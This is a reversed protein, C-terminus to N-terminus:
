YKIEFYGSKLVSEKKGKLIEGIMSNGGLEVTMELTGKIIGGSNETVVLKGEKIVYPINSIDAWIVGTKFEGSNSYGKLETTEVKIESPSSIKEWLIRIVGKDPPGFATIADFYDSAQDSMLPWTLTDGDINCFMTGANTNKKLQSFVAPFIIFLFFVTRLFKM